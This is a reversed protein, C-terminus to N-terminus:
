LRRSLCNYVMCATGPCLDHLICNEMYQKILGVLTNGLAAVTNDNLFETCDATEALAQISYRLCEWRKRYEEEKIGYESCIGGEQNGIKILCTQRSGDMIELALSAPVYTTSLLELLQWAKDIIDTENTIRTTSFAMSDKALTCSLGYDSILFSELM